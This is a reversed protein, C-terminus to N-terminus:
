ISLLNNMCDKFTESWFITKGSLSRELTDKDIFVIHKELEKHDKLFSTVKNERGLWCILINDPEYPDIYKHIVGECYAKQLTAMNLVADNHENWFKVQIVCNKGGDSVCTGDIGFDKVEYLPTCFEYTAARYDGYNRNKIFLSGHFKGLFVEIFFYEGIFGKFHNKLSEFDDNGISKWIGSQGKEICWKAYLSAEKDVTKFLGDVSSISLLREIGNSKLYSLVSLAPISNKKVDSWISRHKWVNVDNSKIHTEKLNKLEM